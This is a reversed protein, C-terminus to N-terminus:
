IHILSLGENDVDRVSKWNVPLETEWTITSAPLVDKSGYAAFDADFPALLDAVPPQPGPLFRLFIFGHFLHTLANFIFYNHRSIIIRGAM